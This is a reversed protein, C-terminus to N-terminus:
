PGRLKEVVARVSEVVGEERLGLVEMWRRTEEAFGNLGGFGYIAATVNEVAGDAYGGDPVPVGEAAQLRQLADRLLRETGDHTVEFRTGLAEELAAM